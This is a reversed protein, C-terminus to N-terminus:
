NKLVNNSVKRKEINQDFIQNFCADLSQELVELVHKTSIDTKTIERKVFDDQCVTHLSASFEKREKRLM